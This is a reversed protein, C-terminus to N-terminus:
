TSYRESLAKILAQHIPAEHKAAALAKAMAETAVKADAETFHPDNYNLGSALAAGWYAMACDPDIKASQGFARVAEDHNFAFMFMMGQDFYRQAMPNSTAVKRTYSGLGDFMPVAPKTSEDALLAASAFLAAILIIRPYM